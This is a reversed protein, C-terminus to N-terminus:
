GSRRCGRAPVNMDLVARRFRGGRIPPFLEPPCSYERCRAECSRLRARQSRWSKWGAWQNAAIFGRGYESGAVSAHVRGRRFGVRHEDRSTWTLADFTWYRLGNRGEITQLMTVVYWRTE